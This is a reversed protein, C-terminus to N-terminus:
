IRYRSLLLRHNQQLQAATFQRWGGNENIVLREGHPIVKVTLPMWSAASWRPHQEPKGTDAASQPLKRRQVAATHDESAATEAPYGTRGAPKVVFGHNLLESYPRLSLSHQKSFLTLERASLEGYGSSEPLKLAWDTLGKRDAPELSRGGPIRLNIRINDKLSKDQHM